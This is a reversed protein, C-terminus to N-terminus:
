RSILPLYARWLTITVPGHTTRNGSLDVDELTYYYATGPLATADLFDYSAGGDGGPAKSPLLAENLQMGLAEATTSRYLNFGANNFESATEWTLLIGGPAPAAAFSTLKVATPAPSPDDEVEGGTAGGYSDGDRASPAGASDYLRFRYNIPQTVTAPVNVTIDTDGVDVSQNYVQENTDFIGNENWDFWGRLWGGSVPTGQVNVRVTAPGQFDGIFTIGDDGVDNNAAPMPDDATWSSGLRFSGDGTHWAIGYGTALDSYDAVTTGVNGCLVVSWADLTGTDQRSDDYIRLTWTGNAPKGDLTALSGEPRFSGTFPASGSTISTDAEDDFRTDIYNNGSSGNDTSLMVETTDPHRIYIDLDADYTHIIQGIIVDVDTLAFTDAVNLVSTTWNRDTISKPIDTSNYTLCTNGATRFASVASAVSNCPNVAVVRWYYLTDPSLTAGNYSTSGAALGASDVITSTPTPPM